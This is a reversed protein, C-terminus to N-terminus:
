GAHGRRRSSTQRRTHCVLQFEGSQRRVVHAFPRGRRVGRGRASRQTSCVAQELGTQTRAGVYYGLASGGTFRIGTGGLALGYYVAGAAVAFDPETHPLQVVPRDMWQNLLKLVRACVAPSKFFGGNFLVADVRASKPRTDSTPSNRGHASAAHETLFQGLHHSIAPDGEFPLGFGLLASQRRKLPTDIADLPLFGDFVLAEVEARTLEARLTNGVLQAGRRLLRIPASLAPNAGLLREKVRQCTAVLQAFESAPLRKKLEFKREVLHALTLDINDGGLLLHRGVAVREVSVREHIPLTLLETASLGDRPSVHLLTLDTTGGGVDIILVLSGKGQRLLQEVAQPTARHLWDYFAAQPEELLKVRLGAREAAQLTLRRAVQDFSAPVTLVVTTDAELSVQAQALGHKVQRLIAASADVPSLRTINEDQEDDSDRRSVWPLIAATRDVGTHCLWSKASTIVREPVETSRKRAHAGVVWADDPRQSVFSEEPLGHYLVSPLQSLAETENVDTYQDLPVVRASARESVAVVTNSTGLDIGVVRSM